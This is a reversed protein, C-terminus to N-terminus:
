LDRLDAPGLVDLEISDALERWRVRDDVNVLVAALVGIREGLEDWVDDDGMGESREVVEVQVPQEAVGEAPLRLGLPQALLELAREALQARSRPRGLIDEVQDPAVWPHDDGRVRVDRLHERQDAPARM